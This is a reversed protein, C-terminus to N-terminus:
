VKIVIKGVVEYGMAKEFAKRADEWAFVTLDPPHLNKDAYLKVMAEAHEKKVNLVGRM